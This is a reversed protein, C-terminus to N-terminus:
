DGETEEKPIKKLQEEIARVFARRVQTTCSDFLLNDLFLPIINYGSKETGSLNKIQRDFNLSISKLFNDVYKKNM